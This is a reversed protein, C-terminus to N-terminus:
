AKPNLVAHAAALDEITWAGTLTISNIVSKAGLTAVHELMATRETTREATPAPEARDWAPKGNCCYYKDGAKYMRICRCLVGAPLEKYGDPTSGRRLPIVVERGEVDHETTM